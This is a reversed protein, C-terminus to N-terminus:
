VSGNARGPCMVTTHINNFEVWKQKWSQYGYIHRLEDRTSSVAGSTKTCVVIQHLSCQFCNSFLVPVRFVHCTIPYVMQRDSDMVSNSSVILDVFWVVMATLQYILHQGFDSPLLDFVDRDDLFAKLSM